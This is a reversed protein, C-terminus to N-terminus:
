AHAAAPAVEPAQGVGARRGPPRPPAPIRTACAASAAAAVVLVAFLLGFGATGTDAPALPGALLATGVISGAYRSTSFVGAAVGASRADVAGVAAVQLASSALGLGTGAVLMCAVMLAPGAEAPWLALPVLSLAQVGLGAVAPARSGLRDVVRGGLPTVVLSAASLSALVLGAVAEGPRGQRALLVPLALLTVYMALNSLAVGASAASFGARAFLRPQVVPDPRRLEVRVFAALLVM